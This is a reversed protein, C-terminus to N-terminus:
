LPTIGKKKRGRHQTYKQVSAGVCIFIGIYHSPTAYSLPSIQPAQLVSTFTLRIEPKRSARSRPPTDAEATESRSQPNLWSKQERFMGNLERFLRVELNVHEGSIQKETMVRSGHHVHLGFTNPIM